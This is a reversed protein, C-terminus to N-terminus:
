FSKSYNPSGMAVVLQNYGIKRGSKLVIANEEPLFKEVTGVESATYMNIALKANILYDTKACRQQEYILRLPGSQNITQDFVVMTSYKGHSDDDLHRSFVAGLNGGVIVVEYKDLDRRTPKRKSGIGGFSASSINSLSKFLPSGKAFASKLQLM